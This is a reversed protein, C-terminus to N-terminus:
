EELIHCSLAQGLDESAVSSGLGVTGQAPGLQDGVDGRVEELMQIRIQQPTFHYPPGGLADISHSSATHPRTKHTRQPYM